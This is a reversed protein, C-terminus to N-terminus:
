KPVWHLCKRCLGLYIMLYVFLCFVQIIETYATKKGALLEFEISVSVKFCNNHKVTSLICIEHSHFIKFSVSSVM